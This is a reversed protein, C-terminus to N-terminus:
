LFSTKIYMSYRPGGSLAMYWNKNANFELIYCCLQKLFCCHLWLCCSFSPNLHLLWLFAASLMPVSRSTHVFKQFITNEHLTMKQSNGFLIGTEFSSTKKASKPLSRGVEKLEQWRFFCNLLLPLYNYFEIELHVTYLILAVACWQFVRTYMSM